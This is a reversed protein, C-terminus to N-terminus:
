GTKKGFFKSENKMTRGSDGDAEVRNQYLKWFEAYATIYSQATTQQAEAGMYLPLLARPDMGEDNDMREALDQLGDADNKKEAAKVYLFSMWEEYDGPEFGSAPIYKGTRANGNPKM